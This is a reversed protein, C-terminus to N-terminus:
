TRIGPLTVELGQETYLLACVGTRFVTSMQPCQVDWMMGCGVADWWQITLKHTREVGAPTSIEIHVSRYFSAGAPPYRASSSDFCGVRACFVVAPLVVIPVVLM